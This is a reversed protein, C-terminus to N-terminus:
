ALPGTVTAGGLLTWGAGGNTARFDSSVNVAGTGDLILISRVLGDPGQISLPHTKSPIGTTGSAVTVTGALTWSAADTLDDGDPATYVDYKRLTADVDLRLRFQGTPWTVAVDGQVIPTTGGTPFVQFRTAGSSLTQMAWTTDPTVGRRILGQSVMTNPKVLMRVSFKQSAQLAADVAHEATSNATSLNLGRIAPDTPTVDPLPIVRPPIVVGKSSILNLSLMLELIRRAMARHGASTPHINDLFLSSPVVNNAIDTDDQATHAVGEDDLGHAALYTRLDFYHAGFEGALSILINENAPIATRFLPAILIAKSPDPMQQLMARTQSEISGGNRGGFSVLVADRSGRAATTRFAGGASPVPKSATAATVRAMTWSAGDYRVTVPVGLFVGSFYSQPAPSAAGIFNTVTPSVLTVAFPNTSAPVVGGPVTFTVPVGYRTAIDGIREGPVSPNFVVRNTYESILAGYPVVKGELPDTQGGATISDGLTAIDATVIVAGTGVNAIADALQASTAYTSLANKTASGDTTIATAIAQDTPITNPGAPGAQGPAGDEGKPGRINGIYEKIM